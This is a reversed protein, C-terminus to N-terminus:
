QPREEALVKPIAAAIRAARNRPDPHTSLLEPQRSKEQAAMREWLGVAEYPDFGARVMLRLGISDAENEHLRSFPLMVGVETGLGLAAMIPGQLAPDANGLGVQLVSMAGQAVMQQSVREAGHRALAHAIEHAMVTALGDANQTIPLIGTYVAIKGGPLCFANAMKDDQILKFEWAFNRGTVAAIRRGVTEVMLARETGVEVPKDKLIEQYAELGMQLEQEESVLRLQSRDGYPVSSCGGAGALGVFLATLLAFACLHVRGFPLSSIM